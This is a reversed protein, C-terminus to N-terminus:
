PNLDPLGTPYGWALGGFFWMSFSAVIMPLGAIPSIALIAPGSIAGLAVTLRQAGTLPERGRGKRAMRAGVVTGVFWLGTASVLAVFPYAIRAASSVLVWSTLIGIVGLGACIYPVPRLQQRIYEPTHEERM